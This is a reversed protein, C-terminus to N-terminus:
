GWGDHLRHEFILAQENKQENQGGCLSMVFAKGLSALKNYKITNKVKAIAPYQAGIGM